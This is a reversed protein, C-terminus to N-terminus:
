NTLNTSNTLSTSSASPTEQQIDKKNFQKKIYNIYSNLKPLFQSIFHDIQNKYEEPIRNRNETKRIWDKVEEFSGRTYYCFKLSKKYHFSGYGEAINVSVSDAARVFQIGVTRCVFYNWESCIQWILNSFVLSETYVDLSKIDKRM